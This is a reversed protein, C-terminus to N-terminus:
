IPRPHRRFVGDLAHDIQAHAEAEGNQVGWTMTGLCIETMAVGTRGLQKTKM